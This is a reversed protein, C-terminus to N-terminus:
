WGTVKGINSGMGSFFGNFMSDIMTKTVRVSIPKSIANSVGAGLLVFGFSFLSYHNNAPDRLHAAYQGILNSLGSAIYPNGLVTKFRNIEGGMSIVAGALAGVGVDYKNGGSAFAGYAGSLGGLMGSGIVSSFEVGRRARWSTLSAMVSTQNFNYYSKEGYKGVKFALRKAGGVITAASFTDDILTINQETLNTKQLATLTQSQALEGTATMKLGTAIKDAAHIGLLYSLPTSLGASSGELAAAGAMEIVGEGVQEVGTLRNGIKGKEWITSSLERMWNISSDKVFTSLGVSLDSETSVGASKEGWVGFLKPGYTLLTDGYDNWLENAKESISEYVQRSATEDQNSQGYTGAPITSMEEPPVQPFPCYEGEEIEQFLQSPQSPKTQAIQSRILGTGIASGLNDSLVQTANFGGGSIASQLGDTALANLESHIVSGAGEGLNRNLSKSFKEGQKSGAIGGFVGKAGLESWSFHQHNQLALSVGQSVADEGMMEAASSVSFGSPSLKDFKGLLSTFAESSNLGNLIGASAATSLGTVLSGKLNLGKQLGLINALGQGALNGTVGAAFGTALSGAMGMAQGALAKMGLHLLGKLGESLTAGIAGALTAFAAAALVTAIVTVAAVAIKKFLSHSKRHPILPAPTSLPSMPVTPSTDGILDSSSIVRHTANNLHQRTAVPPIVLRQGNHLGGLKDTLGNADAILYWFSSDGYIQLAISELNDGAQVTYAGINDQPTNVPIENSQTGLAERQLFEATSNMFAPAFDGFYAAFSGARQSGTPSFGGYVNLHQTGDSDLRLDGITKGAVTLYNTQGSGEKRGRIGELTSIKYDISSPIGGSGTIPIDVANSLQGNVDYHRVSLGQTLQGNNISLSAIDMSQLYSGWHEYTYHHYRQYWVGNQYFQNAIDVLNGVADYYYQNKDTEQWTGAVLTSTTQYQLLDRDYIMRTISAAHAFVDYLREEDVRGIADYQITKLLGGNKSISELQNLNNYKYNYQQLAGNEFKWASKINGADDYDLYSSQSDSVIIGGNVFGGKNILMRNNADYTYYDDRRVKQYGTYNAEVSTHRINGAADYHYDINLLAHEKEPFRNDTDNPRHRRVAILRGNTDYAYGDTERIWGDPKELPRSATKSIINGDADYSYFVSEECANDSYSLLEGNGRYRYSISKGTTSTEELLLGNKNYEYATIHGGLDTHSRLRGNTDYSWSQSLSNAEQEFTKHGADDYKAYTMRGSTDKKAIQHNLNDYWFLLSQGLANSQVILEGTEDYVYTQKGKASNVSVLRNAKDYAYTTLGGLENQLSVLQGLLNYDKFRMKGKADIEARIRGEADLIKGVIHGNADTMAIARGLADYAYYLTPKLSHAVMKEDFAVTEPLEQKIVQDFANYEYRTEFGRASIHSLINGWRDVQQSQQVIELRDKQGIQEPHVTFEKRQSLTRGLGDYINNQRQLNFRWQDETFQETENFRDSSLDVGHNDYEESYANTSTVVQTVHDILDYVYIQYFGQTNSRRVRGLHDYEIHITLNGNIGKAVTEGFANYVADETMPQGDNKYTATQVLHGEKDYAYRKDILRHSGDVQSVVQWSRVRQGNADYSYQIAHNLGDIETLLRGQSDYIAHTTVDEASVGNLVYHEKDAYAAGHAFRTVEVLQGLADYSYSTAARGKSTAPGVKAILQNLANYYCYATYGLADTISTLNGLADYTYNTTVDAIITEYRNSGNILRQCSVKKLTKSTLQGLVDYTFVVHRDNVSLEPIIVQSKDWSNARNAYQIEDTLKGSTNYTYTTLYHEADLCAQKLGDKDYYYNTIAWDIENRKIAVQTIEGFANYSTRTTPRLTDYHNTAANYTRTPSQSKEILRNDLDYQYFEERDSASPLAAEAFAESSCDLDKSWSLAKAYRTRSVVNGFADYTFRTLAGKADLSYLLQGKSDYANYRWNGARDQSAVIEGFANYEQVETLTQAQEQRDPSAKNSAINLLVDPYITKIKRNNNDYVYRTVQNEGGVDRITSIVNGFSDYSNRTLISRTKALWQGAELSMILTSPSHTEILQNAEDYVYTWEASNAENKALLNSNNDYRYRTTQQKADTKAVLRSVDDYTFSTIIAQEDAKLIQRLDSKVGSSIVFREHHVIENIVNGLADYRRELVRGEASVRYVERGAADYVFRTLRDQGSTLIQNQWDDRLTSHELPVAYQLNAIINGAGDYFYARAIGNASLEHSLRGATDYAYLTYQDTSSSKINARIVESSVVKGELALCQAFRAKAILQGSSNYSFQTLYNKEDLQYILQNLGNYAFYQHRDREKKSKPLVLNGAKLMDLSQPNAFRTMHVLNGNGDYAYTTAYGLADFYVTVRGAFDYLRFQYQDNESPKLVLRLNAETYKDLAPIRNAYAITKEEHGNADYIHETVTGRADIQFRCQNKGDYLFHRTNNNADTESILNDNEDYEYRTTLKLSEPDLITAKRRELADWEYATVKNKGQPNFEIQRLLLGRDDYFFDTTLNLGKPDIRTQILNGCNDYSFQKCLGNAEIVELQRGVGDYRYRTTLALGDPAVTKSLVRGEADYSYRIAQGNSDQWVLHGAEDYLYHKSVGEPASVSLLQGKADFAYHTVQGNADTVTIKDGFVNFQTVIKTKQEPHELTLTNNQDDYVFFNIARYANNTESLIRGFADYAFQKKYRAQDEVMVREGRRNLSYSTVGGRGDITKEIRGFVDYQIETKRIFGGLNDVQYRLLGRRDYHYQTVVEQSSNISVHTEELEGFVNYQTTQQARSGTLKKVLQGLTNYEYYTIEDVAADQLASVRDVLDASSIATEKLLKSYRRTMVMQNFSNYQYETVRGEANLAYNLLGTENYYYHTTQNLGNTLSILRGALDYRYHLGHRQWIGECEEPTPAAAKLLEQVGIEDLRQSVRGMADYRFIQGRIEATKTDTIIKELILGKEDYRFKTLLGNQSREEILQDLDNYLYSTVHDSSKEKLALASLFTKENISALVEKSLATSFGRKQILLGRENYKYTIAFGLPDIDVVKLGAANYLSLNHIDKFTSKPAKWEADLPFSLRNAYRITEILHGAKDYRFATAAGEGNVEALLRGGSDYFYHISRDEKSGQLKIEDFSLIQGSYGNLRTAYATKTVVRGTADYELALIGGEADIQYAVQNYRNYVTQSARDKPSKQPKVTFWLPINKQWDITSVTENYHVTQILRGNNDYCYETLYGGPDCKAQLRGEGDYFYYTISGDMSTESQLLGAKDYSYYITGYDKQRGDLYQTTLLLGSCDYTRITQLGNADTEITRQHLDDYEFRQSHNQNDTRQILRGLDDYIYSTTSLKGNVPVTKEVLRGTADHRFYTIVAGDQQGEGEANITQYHTEEDLLGRWDYHYTTLTIAQAKQTGVWSLLDELKLNRENTLQAIDYNTQLYVRSSICQGDRNYRYESVTGDGAIKFRLHGKEDYVFHNTKPTAPHHNGDFCTYSTESLLRHENDYVRSTIQGSPEQISVCDGAENYKLLWHLDGQYIDTLYNGEYAYRVHSSGPGDIGTLRNQNDYFYVWKEGKDNTALTKGDPYEYTTTRNEGDVIKKVRGKDDYDILLATGDSQRITSIRNSDGVYHYSIWYSKGETLDRSVKSLRNQEDYDYQLHHVTIGDSTVTLEHLLGQNFAWKIFQNSSNDVIYNLLGERYFFQLQHGDRDTLKTLYGDLNYEYSCASAGERYIWQNEKFSLTATGGKKDVYLGKNINFIFHSIHGDADIRTLESGECNATGQLSLHSQTNFQWNKGGEGLSNYSQIVEFGLGQSALFGDSQRLVLNGNAANMYVSEGGQGLEAKGKPGYNGLQGLSSGSIGLGDNTFVQTM